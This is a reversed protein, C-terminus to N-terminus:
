VQGSWSIEFIGNTPRQVQLLRSGATIMQRTGEGGGIESRCGSRGSRGLPLFDDSGPRGRARGHNLDLPEDSGPKGIAAVKEGGNEQLAGHPGSAIKTGGLKDNPRNPSPAQQTGSGASLESGQIVCHLAPPSNLPGRTTLARTLTRFISAIVKISGQKSKSQSRQAYACTPSWRLNM